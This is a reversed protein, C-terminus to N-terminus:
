TCFTLRINAMQLIMESESSTQLYPYTEFNSVLKRIVSSTVELISISHTGQVSVGVKWKEKAETDFVVLSVPPHDFKLSFIYRGQINLYHSVSHIFASKKEEKNRKRRKKKKLYLNEVLIVDSIKYDLLATSHKIIHNM